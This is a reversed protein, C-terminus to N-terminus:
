GHAAFGLVRGRELCAGSRASIDQLEARELAVVATMLKTISAIARERGPANGSLVSGDDGVLYWSAAAIQPEASEAGASAVQMPLALALLAVVALSARRM